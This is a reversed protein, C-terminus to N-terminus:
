PQDGGSAATEDAADEAYTEEIHRLVELAREEMAPTTEADGYRVDEFLRTLEDVHERELGADIAARAFERPTSSEPRSVELSETMEQWARYIENDVDDGDATDIRDAARGAASAVAAADTHGAPEPEAQAPEVEDTDDTGRTAFLGGVFIATIIGLVFLLPGMSFSSGDGDGSGGDGGGGTENPQEPPAPPEVDMGGGQTFVYVLGFIVLCLALAAAILRVADRRHALLYWVFALALVIALAYLLYELVVPIDTVGPDSQDMPEPEIPAGGDGDGIGGNGGSEIPSELTAAALAIATIAGVAALM